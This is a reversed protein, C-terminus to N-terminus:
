FVLFLLNAIKYESCIENCAIHLLVFKIRYTQLKVDCPETTIM